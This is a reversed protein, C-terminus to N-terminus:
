IDAKSVCYIQKGLYNRMLKLLLGLIIVTKEKKEYFLAVFRCHHPFAVRRHPVFFAVDYFYSIADQQFGTRPFVFQRENRFDGEQPFVGIITLKKKMNSKEM